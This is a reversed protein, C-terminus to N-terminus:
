LLGLVRLVIVFVLILAADDVIDHAVHAWGEPITHKM